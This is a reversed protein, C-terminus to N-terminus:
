VVSKRDLKGEFPWPGDTEVMLQDLPYQKVVNKIKEKYLVEPTVSICYGNTVMRQITHSDGKFWHFHARSINHKELLDCVLPADEYIAHLIIPKNYSAARQIMRELLEMYPNVSLSANEKKTYYPLGVEGIAIFKEHHTDIYHLLQEIKEQSPLTQEPHFGCAPQILSYKQALKLTEQASSLDNSVAILGEIKWKVCDNIMQKQEGTSYHDMHIHADILPHINQKM